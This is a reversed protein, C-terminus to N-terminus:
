TRTASRRRRVTANGTGRHLRAKPTAQGPLQGCEERELTGPAIAVVAGLEHKPTKVAEEALLHRPFASQADIVRHQGPECTPRVSLRDAHRHSEADNALQPSIEMPAIRLAKGSLWAPRSQRRLRAECSVNKRRGVDALQQTEDISQLSGRKATDKKTSQKQNQVARPKAESLCQAEPNTIDVNATANEENGLRLAPRTPRWKMCRERNLQSAVETCPTGENPKGRLWVVVEEDACVAEM